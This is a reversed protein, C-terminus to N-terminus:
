ICPFPIGSFEGNLYRRRFGTVNRIGEFDSLRTLTTGATLTKNVIGLESVRLVDTALLDTNHATFVIQAANKNYNKDKFLRVVERFVLSHLSCDLEDIFITKGTELVFLLFGILGLALRTGASEEGFNFRVENGLVDAHFSHFYDVFAQKEDIRRPVFPPREGVFKVAGREDIQVIEKNFEIRKIGLDLKKIIDEVKKLAEERPFIKALADLTEGPHFENGDFSQMDQIIFSYARSIDTNLGAYNTAIKSLFSFKQLANGDFCEVALINELKERKYFVTELKESNELKSDKISFVITEGHKLVENKIGANGCFEILYSYEEGDKLFVIEFSTMKLEPHLRNESSVEYLGNKVLNWFNFLARVLNTKGSANAGYLALVPVVRKSKDKNDFFPITEMEGYGNPAKGEAYRLDITADVISRFNKVRFSILM